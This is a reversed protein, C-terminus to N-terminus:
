PQEEGVRVVAARAEAALRPACDNCRNDYVGLDVIGFGCRRCTFEDWIRDAAKVIWVPMVGTATGTGVMERWILEQIRQRFIETEAPEGSDGRSAQRETM